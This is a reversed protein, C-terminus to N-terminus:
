IKAINLTQTNGDKVVVVGEDLSISKVTFGNITKGVTVRKTQGTSLDQLTAQLQSGAGLVNVLKYLDAINVDDSAQTSVGSKNNTTSTQTEVIQNALNARELEIQEAEADLKARANDFEQQQQEARGSLTDIEMSLKIKEAALKDLELDLQAREKELQMLVKEQELTTIQEFVSGAVDYESVSEASLQELEQQELEDQANANHGVFLSIIFAGCVAFINHLIKNQM